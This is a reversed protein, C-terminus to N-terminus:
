GCLPAFLYGLIFEISLNDFDTFESILANMSFLDGILWMIDNLLAIFALFVLMAGVNVALKVGEITGNTISLM